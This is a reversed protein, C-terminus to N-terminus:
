GPEPEMLIYFLSFQSKIMSVNLKFPKDLYVNAALTNMERFDKISKFVSPNIPTKTPDTTGSINRFAKNM